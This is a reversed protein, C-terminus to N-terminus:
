RTSALRHLEGLVDTYSVTPSETGSAAEHISLPDKFGSGTVLCVARETQGITGNALAKRYGAFATAGAPESYVGETRLLLRQAKFVEADSVGLVMGQHKRALRLALSADIDFPVSLGSIRTTSEVPLVEERLNVFADLVNKM